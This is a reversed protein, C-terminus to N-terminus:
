KVTNCDFGTVFVPRETVQIEVKGNTTKKKDVHMEEKGIAPTYIYATGANGLDLSYTATKGQQDPILLTYMLKNGNKYQDILPYPEISRSYTYNGFLKNVQCLFDAAPRRTYDANIFGSSAYKTENNINDDYLEYYFVRQVGTKAYLLSTRLIWDAQTETPQNGKISPARQISRDNVDYGAETVWVPMDRAYIHAAELFSRAITVSISKEPAIGTTQRAGPELDADNAYYHYNIIDWPLDVAGDKKLGRFERCWDIMGMLYDTNALAVGGMVVMMSADANKVGAGPGMKGKNGDYFASLNAAYERATQYASRGKWWKDRENDCEIYKILGLGAKLQNVQDNTWRPKTDVTLLNKDINKNNGYRAAFQFAMRAQGIYSDPNRLDAGFRAPVNENNRQGEPYTQQLWAPITKICALVEIGQQKCWTYMEDYNWGGNRTPNFTFSGQAPELKEWDLYHRVSTFSKIAKRKAILRGPNEDTFNWEFANVGCFNRLPAPGITAEPLPAPPTYEGYFEIEDPFQGWSDIILYQIQQAYVSLAYVGPHFPDPGDWHDGGSCSYSAIQTRKWDASIAYIIVPHDKTIGKGGHIMISDISIHEGPLLPYWSEFHSLLTGKGTNVDQGVRGDFLQDLTKNANNLQYWRKGDIPIKGPLRYNHSDSQSCCNFGILIFFLAFYYRRM